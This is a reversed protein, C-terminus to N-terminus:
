QNHEDRMRFKEEKGFSNLYDSLNSFHPFHKRLFAMAAQYAEISRELDRSEGLHAHRIKLSNHLNNLYLPLNPFNPFHQRTLAVAEQYAEIGRDL